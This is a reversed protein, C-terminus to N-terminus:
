RSAPDERLDDLDFDELGFDEEEEAPESDASKKATAEDEEDATKKDPEPAADEDAQLQEAESLSLVPPVLDDDEATEAVPSEESANSIEEEQETEPEAAEDPQDAVSEVVPPEPEPQEETLAKDPTTEPERDLDSTQEAAKRKRILVVAAVVGALLFVGGVGLGIWLWPLSEEVPESQAEPQVSPEELQSLDVPRSLDEGPNEDTPAPDSVQEATPEPVETPEAQPKPGITPSEGSLDIAADSETVPAEEPAPPLAEGPAAFNLTQSFKRSFTKGDAIVDLHYIGPQPLRAITDTYIGEEPTLSKTGSRGSADSLRLTVDLVQLFDPNTLQDGDGYFAVNVDVAQGEEFMAPIPSVIMRLDSVVTVRSGEGLGGQFRWEGPEPNRVTILDYDAERAWLTGSTSQAQDYAIAEGSPTVLEIRKESPDGTFVLATYEEVGDDIRFRKGEIPLQEQPAATNLADLFAKSLDDATEALWLSGNTQEALDRLFEMDADRSLAITQLSIGRRNLSRVFDDLIRRKEIANTREGPAIDVQGDTLLIVSAASGPEPDMWPDTAVELAKGINTWQAISNIRESREVMRERWEENVPGYPVLMNVYQGFTWLGAKADSPIMRALLRVAPQRLNAPDTTRMSGSIDVVIRVDPKPPLEPSTSGEQALVPIVFCLLAAHLVWRMM